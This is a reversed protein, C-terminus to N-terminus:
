TRRDFLFPFWSDDRTLPTSFIVRSRELRVHASGVRDGENIRGIIESPIGDTPEFVADSLGSSRARDNLRGAIADPHFAWSDSSMLTLFEPVEPPMRNIVIPRTPWCFLDSLPLFKPRWYDVKKKAVGCGNTVVPAVESAFVLNVGEVAPLTNNAAGLASSPHYFIYFPVSGSHKAAAVLRQAQKGKEYDLHEYYWYPKASRSPKARKAQLLLRFCRGGNRDMPSVFFWEM